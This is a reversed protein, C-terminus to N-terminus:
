RRIAVPGLECYEDATRKELPLQIARGSAEDYLGLLLRAVTGTGAVRPFSALAAVRQRDGELWQSTPLPGADTEALTRGQEDALRLRLAFDRLARGTGRNVWTMDLPFAEGARLSEPATVEVPVLRYGMRRLGRAILDPREQMFELGARACDMLSIYNPHLSLADDVVQRVFDPGGNRFSRYSGVFESMMPARRLERYAYECLRRENSRVAGGAGDRRLTINTKQLALDFASFRLYEEYNTTFAPDLRHWPGAHLADPGDPDFSYSLALRRQPFAACWADLVGQLAARKDDLTAYPYGSHWEGWRGFGRLDVLAPTREGSFHANVEHLFVALRERYLPHRADVHWGFQPGDTRRRKQEDPIRALLWDPIGLGGPPQARSWGFLPETSMRLHLGKGKQLWHACAQDVRTWDFRDPATEVDSWAFMVAVYDCGEFRAEPLVNMTGAGAPRADLPYNEYLVWGMDPNHLAVEADERPALLPREAPGAQLSGTTGALLGGAAIAFHSMKM